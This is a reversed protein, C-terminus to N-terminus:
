QGTRNKETNAADDKEKQKDQAKARRRKLNDRLAAARKDLKDQKQM